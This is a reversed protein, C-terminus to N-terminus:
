KEVGELTIKTQVQEAISMLHRFEDQGAAQCLSQFKGEQQILEVPTGQQILTGKDMVLIKDCSM